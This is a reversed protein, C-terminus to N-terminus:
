PIFLFENANLLARGLMKMGHEEVFAEADDLEEVSPERGFSLTIARAIRARSNDGDELSVRKALLDAQQLVFTSNLLNLAQLPTTSRSRVPMVQSADPCDFAGFVSEQEQRVKTMYIMRRWDEPGYNTKPFFHRVNELQVEFGSFEQQTVM